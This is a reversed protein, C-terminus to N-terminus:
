NKRKSKRISKKSKRISKRKGDKRKSKRISKRKSKRGDKGKSKRISKRKSKRKGDGKEGKEFPRSAGKEGEEFLKILRFLELCDEYSIIETLTKELINSIGVDKEIYSTIKTRSNNIINENSIILENFKSFNIEELNIFKFNIAKINQLYLKVHEKNDLHTSILYVFIKIIDKTHKKYDDYMYEYRSESLVIKSFYNFNNNIEEIRTFRKLIIQNYISNVFKVTMNERRGFTHYPLSNYKELQKVNDIENYFGYIILFLENIYNNIIKRVTDYSIRDKNKDYPTFNLYNFLKYTEAGFKDWHNLLKKIEIANNYLKWSEDDFDPFENVVADIVDKSLFNDIILHNFPKNESWENIYDEFNIKNVYNKNM